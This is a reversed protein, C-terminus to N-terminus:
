WLTSDASWFYLAFAMAGSPLISDIRDFFGGHGPLWSSMDKIKLDRKIMSETLDGATATILLLPGMILGFWWDQDLLFISVLIGVVISTLGAGAFGEWTKGPSIKPALKHKGFNLGFVYAGVDVAVVIILFGLVWWQGDEQSTLLVTFSGLYSVYILILAAALFDAWVAKRPPRDTSVSAEVLRWVTVVFVGILLALWQGVVDFYYAVPQIAVAAVVLPIRPVDRGAGRMASALEITAFIVMAVAFPIFLQKIFILSSILLAGLVVGFFIAFSLNRGSRANIADNRARLKDRQERVQTRAQQARSELDHLINTGTDGLRSPRLPTLPPAPAGDGM